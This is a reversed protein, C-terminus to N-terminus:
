SCARSTIRSSLQVKEFDAKNDPIKMCIGDFGLKFRTISCNSANKSNSNECAYNFISRTVHILKLLKTNGQKNRTNNQYLKTIVSKISYILEITYDTPM